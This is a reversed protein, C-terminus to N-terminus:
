AFCDVREHKGSLKARLYFHASVTRVHEAPCLPIMSLQSHSSLRAGQSSGAQGSNAPQLAFFIM